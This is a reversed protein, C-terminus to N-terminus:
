EVAFEIPSTLFSDGYDVHSSKNWPGTETSVLVNPEGRLQHTIKSVYSSTCLKYISSEIGFQITKLTKRKKVFLVRDDKVIYGCCSIYKVFMKASDFLINMVSKSFTNSKLFDEYFDNVDVENQPDFEYINFM